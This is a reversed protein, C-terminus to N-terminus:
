GAHPRAAPRRGVLRLRARGQDLSGGMARADRSRSLQQDADPFRDIHAVFGTPDPQPPAPRSPDPSSVALELARDNSAIVLVQKGAHYCPALDPLVNLNRLCVGEIDEGM